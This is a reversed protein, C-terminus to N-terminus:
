SSRRVKKTKEATGPALLKPPKASKAKQKAAAVSQQLAEMLNSVQPLPAAPAAVLEEGAVKSEILKTLKENYTDKFQGLDFDPDDLAETLTKALKLEQASVDVKPVEDLFEAVPKMEAAYNLVNMAFMGEKPRLLVVQERGQFVVQAVANRKSDAMAKYLLAYPKQAVPGDPLLYYNKGSYFRPDIADPQIFASIAVAKDSETRLKDLEDTDIVVYQDKAFQYGSVIEGSGVDGHIACTKKYQIRQNCDKHLQNLSISGGGSVAATYAKVPVAVLSFKIFGKWVPRSAM